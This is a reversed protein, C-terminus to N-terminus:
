CQGVTARSFCKKDSVPCSVDMVLGFQPDAANIDDVTFIEADKM